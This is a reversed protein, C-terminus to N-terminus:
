EEEPDLADRLRDLLNTVNIADRQSRVADVGQRMFRQGWRDLTMLLGPDVERVGDDPTSRRLRDRLDDHAQKWAQMAAFCEQFDKEARRLRRAIEGRIERWTYGLPECPEREEAIDALQETSLTALAEDGDDPDPARWSYTWDCDPDACEYGVQDGDDYLPCIPHGSLGEHRLALNWASEKATRGKQGSRDTPQPYPRGGHCQMCSGECRCMGPHLAEGPVPGCNPCREEEGPPSDGVYQRAVDQLAEALQRAPLGEIPAVRLIEQDDATILRLWGGGAEKITPVEAHPPGPANALMAALQRGGDPEGEPQSRLRRRRHEYLARIEDKLLDADQNHCVHIAMDNFKDVIELAEDRAMLLGRISNRDQDVLEEDRTETTDTM